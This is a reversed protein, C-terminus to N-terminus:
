NSKQTDFFKLYTDLKNLEKLKIYQEMFDYDPEGQTNIPLLLKQNPFHKLNVPKGYNYKKLITNNLISCIFNSNYKNFLENRIVLINQSAVFEKPQWYATPVGVM